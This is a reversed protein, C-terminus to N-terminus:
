PTKEEPLSMKLGVHTAEFGLSTYFALADDRTKNTTLQLVHCRRTRAREAAEALLARGVGRSRYDAAVRVGEVQARWRGEFTLNPLYTLQLVGAIREDCVAVLLENNTDREIAAFAAAYSEPLPDVYRERTQGLPDDALLRVIDDLESRRAERLTLTM